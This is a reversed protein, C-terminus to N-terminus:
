RRKMLGIRLYPSTRGDSAASWGIGASWEVDDTKMSTVHAGFRMQRYGDSGFYQVEPGVYFAEIIETFTLWGFALRASHSTAISSLSVDGAILTRRTPEYWLEASFRLGFSAGRLRNDPDAPWLYHRQYEPGFFFKFEADGRKIRWGPMLHAKAEIGIVERGLNQAYYRYAGASLLIKLMLGDQEFGGPAILLGGHAFAGNRWIDRGSFIITHTEEEDAEAFGGPM